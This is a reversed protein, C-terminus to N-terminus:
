EGPKLEMQGGYSMGPSLLSTKSGGGSSGSPGPLIPHSRYPAHPRNVGGPSQVSTPTTVSEGVSGTSKTSTELPHDTCEHGSEKKRNIWSTDSQITVKKYGAVIRATPTKPSISGSEKGGSGTSLASPPPSSPVSSGMRIPKPPLPKTESSSSPPSPTPPLPKPVSSSPTSLLPQNASSSLPTPPLPKPVSSSPTSPLPKMASSSLPPPPLPKTIASPSTRNVNGMSSTNSKNSSTMLAVREDEVEGEEDIKEAGSGKGPQKEPFVPSKDGLTVMGVKGIPSASTARQSLPVKTNAGEDERMSMSRPLVTPKTPRQSSSHPLVNELLKRAKLIKEDETINSDDSKEIDREEKVKNSDDASDMEENEVKLKEREKVKNSVGSSQKSNADGSDTTVQSRNAIVRPKPIPSESKPVFSELKVTKVNSSPASDLSQGRRLFGQTVKSGNAKVIDNTGGVSFVGSRPVPIPKSKSTFTTPVSSPQFGNQSGAVASAGTGIGSSSPLSGPVDRIEDNDVEIKRELMVVALSKEDSQINKAVGGGGSSNAASPSLLHRLRTRESSSSSSTLVEEHHSPSESPVRSSGKSSPPSDRPSIVCPSVSESQSTSSSLPGDWEGSDQLKHRFEKNEKKLKKNQGKLLKIQERLLM